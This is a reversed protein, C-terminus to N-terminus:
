PRSKGASSGATISLSNLLTIKGSYVTFNKLVNNGTKFYLNSTDRVTLNSTASGALAGSGSRIIKGADLTTNGTITTVANAVDLKGAITLNGGTAANNKVIFTHEARSFDVPSSGSGDSVVGWTGPLNLNGAAKSYLTTKGTVTVGSSLVNACGAGDSNIIQVSYAKPSTSTVSDIVYAASTAGSIDVGAKKWQYSTANNASVTITASAGTAIDQASPSPQVAISINLYATNSVVSGVANSVLVAYSGTNSPIVNSITYTSSTAGPIDVNNKKWQYTLSGGTATVSFTTNISGTPCVIVSTPQVAIVPALITFAGTNYAIFAPDSTGSAKLIFNSVSAANGATIGFESLKFAILRINRTTNFPSFTGSIKATDCLAGVPLVYLDLNYTGLLSYLTWNIPIKNGVVIGSSNVFYLTDGAASPDAIQSVLIDPTSDSVAPTIIGTVAFNILASAPVNTAGTGLDLGHLGDILVDRIKLSPLPSSFGSPVGDYNGALAIYISGGSTVTGGVTAVPFARFNAATYVISSDTLKTDNVGTSYNVNHYKFSLVNHSTNPFTANLASTGSKWFGHFDTIVETVQQANVSSTLLFFLVLPM